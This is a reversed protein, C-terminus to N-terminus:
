PPTLCAAGTSTVAGFVDAGTVFGFDTVQVTLCNQGRAFLGDGAKGFRQITLPEIDSFVGGPGGIQIGNLSVISTGNDSRVRLDLTVNDADDGLCFCRQYTITTVGPLSAGRDPDVSIWRSDPLTKWASAPNAVVKAPREPGPSIVRWDDDDAGLAQLGATRDNFGTNLSVTTITECEDPVGNGNLDLSTGDAIDEEDPVGNDNCDHVIATGTITISPIKAARLDLTELTASIQGPQEPTIRFRDGSLTSGNNLQLSVPQPTEFTFGLANRDQAKEPVLEVGAAVPWIVIVNIGNQGGATGSANGQTFAEVRYSQAGNIKTAVEYKGAESQTVRLSGAPEGPDGAARMEIYAGNPL